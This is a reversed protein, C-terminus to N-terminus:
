SGVAASLASTTGVHAMSKEHALARFHRLTQAAITPWGYRAAHQAAHDGMAQREAPSAVLREIADRIAAPERPPVLLGTAGDVVTEALGGVASAIVPVGCAMAEVAVLGFPEYWPTCCVAAASRYLEALQDHAVAGLLQVRDSAGLREALAVLSQAHPDCALDPKPPGGAIVLEVDPLEAVARVVDALGKREVLRSACVIRRSPPRPRGDDRFLDVDVGCPVVAIRAPDAGLRILESREAATTALVRDTTCALLAEYACRVRPSTDMSGQHRRKEIGLAHYTLAVPVDLPAAAEVAAVGSMWFHAHVVDPRERQWQRALDAAFEDMLPWLDDRPIPEPPGAEVHDVEVGETLRVRRPLAPDDRRTHVVVRCGLRALAQALAAVHVNQGGAEAGGLLALPSAHESVLHVRM